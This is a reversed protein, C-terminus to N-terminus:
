TSDDLILLVMLFRHLKLILISLEGKLQGSEDSSQFLHVLHILMQLAINFHQPSVILSM